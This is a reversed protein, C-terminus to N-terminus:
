RAQKASWEEFTMLRTGLKSYDVRLFRDAGRSVADPRVQAVEQAMVGVYDTDSWWYRYRYLAIGDARADLPVIDRKLRIDSLSGRCDFNNDVCLPVAARLYGTTETRDQVVVNYNFNLTSNSSFSGGGFKTVDIGAGFIVPYGFAGTRFNLEGGFVTGNQSFRGGLPVITGGGGTENSSGTIDATMHRYGIYLNIAAEDINPIVNRGFVPIGVGGYFTHSNDPKFQLFTDDGPTPIHFNLVLQGKANTYTQFRYGGFITVGGPAVPVGFRADFGVVNASKGTEGSGSAGFNTDIRADQHISTHGYLIGFALEFQGTVYREDRPKPPEPCPIREWFEGRGDGTGIWVTASSQGWLTFSKIDVDKPNALVRQRLQSPTITTWSSGTKKRWCYGPELSIQQVLKRNQAAAPDPAATLVLLTCLVLSIGAWLRRAIGRM